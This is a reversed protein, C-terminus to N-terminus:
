KTGELKSELLFGPASQVAVPRPHSLQRRRGPLWQDALDPPAGVGGPGNAKGDNPSMTPEPTGRTSRRRAREPLDDDGKECIGFTCHPSLDM